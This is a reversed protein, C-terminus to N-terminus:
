VADAFPLNTAIGEIIREEGVAMLEVRTGLIQERNRSSFVIDVGKQLHVPVVLHLMVAKEGGTWRRFERADVADRGAAPNPDDGTLGHGDGRGRGGRRGRGRGRGRLGVIAVPPAVVPIRDYYFITLYYCGLYYMIGDEVFPATVKKVGGKVTAIWFDYGYIDSGTARLAVFDGDKISAGFAEQNRWEDSRLNAREVVTKPTVQVRISRGGSHMSCRAGKQVMYEKRSANRAGFVKAGEECNASPGMICEKCCCPLTSVDLKDDEGVNWFEYLFHSGPLPEYDPRPRDIEGCKVYIYEVHSAPYRSMGTYISSASRGAQAKLAEVLELVTRPAKVEPPIQLLGDESNFSVNGPM